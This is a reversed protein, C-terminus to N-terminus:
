VQIPRDGRNEVRLRIRERGPNLQIRRSEPPDSKTVIAGPANEPAYLAPDPTPFLDNSPVPLFSGYLAIDLNGNLTSIPEHITVLFVRSLSFTLLDLMNLCAIRYTGM